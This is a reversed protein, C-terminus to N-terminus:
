KELASIRNELNENTKRLEENEKELQALRNEQSITYLTLEEVKELLKAQMDGVKVGNELVEKETPIGPLNKNVSIHQELRDLSMLKYDDAFVFDSWGDLTVIVEKATVTGNVALESQPDDTGIGVNGDGKIMLRVANGENRDVFRLSGDSNRANFLWNSSTNELVIKANGKLHLLYEPENTGIGVNGTATITGKVALESQPNETGIGVKGDKKFTVLKGTPGEIYLKKPSTRYYLSLEITDNLGIFDIGHPGGHGSGLRIKNEGNNVSGLHLLADPQDIGIGVEGTTWTEPLSGNDEWNGQAYTVMSVLLLVLVVISLKKM